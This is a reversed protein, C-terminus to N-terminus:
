VETGVWFRGARSQCSAPQSIIPRWVRTVSERHQRDFAGWDGKRFEIVKERTFEAPVSM